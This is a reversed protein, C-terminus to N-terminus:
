EKFRVTLSAENRVVVVFRPLARVCMCMFLIFFCCVSKSDRQQVDVCVCVCVCWWEWHRLGPDGLGQDLTKKTAPETIKQDIDAKREGGGSGLPFSPIIEGSEEM